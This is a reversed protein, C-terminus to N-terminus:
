TAGRVDAINRVTFKVSNAIYCRRHAEEHLAIAKQRSSEASISVSPHLVVEEFAGREGDETMKGSAHDEYALVVIGNDACLHLYWLMHCASLSAVLMEEPSYRRANGRFAIDSSGPIEPKGVIVITHDRDYSTYSTTGVSRSGTWTIQVDYTHQM